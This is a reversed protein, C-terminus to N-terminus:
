PPADRATPASGQITSDRVPTDAEYLKIEKQLTAALADNKQEIALDLARRATVAAMGYSGTEAYAAALTRLLLPNKDGTLQVGKKALVLAGAGDRLAAQPCAALAWALNNLADTNEPQLDLAKRYAGMAESARGLQTYAAGLNNLAGGYGPHLELTKKYQAIAQELDGNRFLANGLNNHAEAYDPKIELALKYHAIAEESRGNLYLVNGLNYHAEAYDPQTELAQRYQLVAEELDGKQELASGLNNHAEAFDPKTELAQKYNTIAEETEGDQYLAVALNYHAFSNAATCALARTWLSKSDRWYSTQKRACVMLAGVALVMLGGLVARRHKWRASWDAAAWTLLVSLGIQPLYTNRDGHASPNVAVIGIVPVLMGLYWVWGVLFWPRRRWLALVGGSLVALLVFALATEWLLQSKEPYHYYIALGTPWVMQRLYAAYSIFINGIRWAMPIEAIPVVAKGQAFYTAVSAVMALAVLPIKELILRRPIGFCEPQGRTAAPTGTPTPPAFRNLPWYDLLLLAFPLALATPKCLLDLVFFVAVMLYRGLSNPRRVYRVYAGLTLMFFFTGLVDKRETVWAVSEVRLPHIAFVAAVFASRWLAGTMQRLILLLLVASAAHILVNTIHYGGPHLGHLQDDLMLSIMTLPHYFNCAVHTFAWAIGQLTLGSTVKANAYVYLDDDYNVFDFYATQGFVALVALVLFACVCLVQWVQPIKAEQISKPKTTKLNRSQRM